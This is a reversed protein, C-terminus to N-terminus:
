FLHPPFPTAVFRSLSIGMFEGKKLKFDKYFVKYVEM